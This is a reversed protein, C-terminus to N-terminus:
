KGANSYARAIAVDWQQAAADLADKATQKKQLVSAIAQDMISWCDAYAAILPQPRSFHQVVDAFKDLQYTPDHVYASDHLSQRPPLGSLTQNYALLNDKSGLTSLWAWAMEPDKSQSSIGHWNPFVNTIQTQRKLPPAVALDHVVDPSGKAIGFMTGNGALQAAYLGIGLATAGTPAKPLQTGPPDIFSILDTWYQLSDTGEQAAFLAKRGDQSIVEGGNQWLYPFYQQNGFSPDYGLRTASAGDRVTLKVALAKLDDWAVPLHAPDLGANRMLDTRYVMARADLRTPMGYRKGNYTTAAVSVPFFDANDPWRALYDDIPRPFGRLTYDVVMVAGSIFVDPAQGAAFEADRKNNFADGWGILEMEVSAGHQRQFAPNFTKEYWSTTDTTFDASLVRLTKGQRIPSSSAAAAGSGAGAISAVNSAVTARATAGGAANSALGQACASLAAIALGGGALLYTGRLVARRTRQTQM